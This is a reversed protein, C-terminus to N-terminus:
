KGSGMKIKSFKQKLRIFREELLAYSLASMLVTLGLSILVQLGWINRVGLYDIIKLTVIIAIMHYMYLGYSIKGLYNLVKNELNVVPNPNTALNLILIGFFVSFVEDNLYPIYFDTFFNISIFAILCWNLVPNYLYKLAKEKNFYWIAFLGGIAMCDISFANWVRSFVYLYRPHGTIDLLLPLLAFKIILYGAIVGILLTQRKKIYKMLVPWILYFQEEVGISWTHGLPSAYDLGKVVVNPLILIYLILSKLSFAEESIPFESSVHRFILFVVLILFYYLPWIRLIRRIYFNKISISTTKKEEALLLYTILFGSLTFFLIVGLQGSQFNRTFFFRDPNTSNVMDIHSLLVIFAALFRLGNLNPFYVKESM